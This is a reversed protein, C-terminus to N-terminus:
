YLILSSNGVVVVGHEAVLTIYEYVLLIIHILIIPLLCKEISEWIDDEMGIFLTLIMLYILPMTPSTLALYVSEEFFSKAFYFFSILIFIAGYLFYKRNKCLLSISVITLFILASYILIIYVMSSTDGRKFFMAYKENVWKSDKYSYILAMFLAIISYVVCVKKPRFRM